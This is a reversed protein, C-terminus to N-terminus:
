RSKTPYRAPHPNSVGAFPNEIELLKLGDLAWLAHEDALAALAEKLLFAAMRERQGIRGLAVAATIRVSPSVDLLVAEFEAEADAAQAGLIRLGFAAWYRVSENPDGYCGLLPSKDESNLWLINPRQTQLGAQALM